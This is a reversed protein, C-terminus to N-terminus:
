FYSVTKKGTFQNSLTLTAVYSLFRHNRHPPPLIYITRETMEDTKVTPLSSLSPSIIILSSWATQINTFTSINKELWTLKETCRIKWLKFEAYKTPSLQQISPRKQNKPNSLVATYCFMGALIAICVLLFWMGLPMLSQAFLTVVACVQAVLVLLSLYFVLPMLLKAKRQITANM